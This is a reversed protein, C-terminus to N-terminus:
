GCRGQRQQQRRRVGICGACLRRSCPADNGAADQIAKADNGSTLDTYSLDVRTGDTFVNTLTLTVVAGTASINAVANAVGGTSVVFKSKDPLNAADITESFTLTITKAAGDSVMSKMVPATTDPVTANSSSGSNSSAAAAAGLVGLVLAAPLISAAAAAGAAGAAAGEAAIPAATAAAAQPVAAPVSAQALLVPEAVVSVVAAADGLQAFLDAQYPQQSAIVEAPSVLESSATTMGPAAAERVTQAQLDDILDALQLQLDSAIPPAVSAATEEAVRDSFGAAGSLAADNRPMPPANQAKDPVAAVAVGALGLAMLAAPSLVSPDAKASKWLGELPKTNKSGAAKKGAHYGLKSQGAM